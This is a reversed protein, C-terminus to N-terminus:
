RGNKSIQMANNRKVEIRKNIVWMAAALIASRENVYKHVYFNKYYKKKDIQVYGRIRDYTTGWNNSRDYTRHVGNFGTSNNKQRKRM